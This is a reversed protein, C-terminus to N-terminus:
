EASREIWCRLTLMTVTSSGISYLSWPITCTCTFSFAPSVKALASRDIRRWSGSTM